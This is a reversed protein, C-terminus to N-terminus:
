LNNHQKLASLVDLTEAISERFTLFLGNKKLYKDKVSRTKQIKIRKKRIENTRTFVEFYALIKLSMHTFNGNILYYISTAIDYVFHFFLFAIVNRMEFNKLITILSNRTSLKITKSYIREFYKKNHYVISSPVYLSEFGKIWLRIGIDPEESYIFYSEDFLTDMFVDKKFLCGTTPTDLTKHPVNFKTSDDRLYGERVEIGYINLKSGAYQLYNTGYYKVKSGCASIKKNKLMPKILEVLWKEDAIADDDIFAIFKGNCYEVSKNRGACAGYNKKFNVIRVEPFNEKVYEWTGDTSGQDCVILEYKESPYKQKMLSILNEKLHKKRNRTLIVVSIFPLEERM